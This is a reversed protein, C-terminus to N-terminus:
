DLRWIYRGWLPDLARLADLSVVCNRFEEKVHDWEGVQVGLATLEKRAIVPDPNDAAPMIWGRLEDDTKFTM